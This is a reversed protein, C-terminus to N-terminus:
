RKRTGMDQGDQIDMHIIRHKQDESRNYREPERIRDMRYIWTFLGTKRTKQVTM